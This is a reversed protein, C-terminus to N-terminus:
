GPRVLSIERYDLAIQEAGFLESPGLLMRSSRWDSHTIVHRTGNACIDGFPLLVEEVIQERGDQDIARRLARAASGYALNSFRQLRIARQSENVMALWDRNTLEVGLAMRVGSGALRCTVKEDPIVDFICITSLLDPVRRPNFQARKPLANGQWLSLWYHALRYNADNFGAAGLAQSAADRDFSRSAALPVGRVRDSAM